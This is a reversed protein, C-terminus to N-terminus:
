RLKVKQFAKNFIFSFLKNWVSLGKSFLFCFQIRNLELLIVTKKGTLSERTDDDKSEEKSEDTETSDNDFSQSVPECPHVSQDDM